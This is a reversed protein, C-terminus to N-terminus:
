CPRSNARYNTPLHKDTDLTEQKSGAGCGEQLSIPIRFGQSRLNAKEANKMGIALVQMLVRVNVAPNRCATQRGVVFGPYACPISEEKRTAHEAAYEAAFEDGAEFARMAFAFQTQGSAQLIKRILFHKTGKQPHKRSVWPNHICFRGKGSRFM